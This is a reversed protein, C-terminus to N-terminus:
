GVDLRALLAETAAAPDRAGFVARICAVGAAGAALVEPVREPTIGGVAYVPLPSRATVEALAEPGVATKGPTPFVPGFLLYDAGATGTEEPCWHVSRGVIAGAGLLRRADTPALGREPLHVGAAGAAAAVDARDSVLWPAGAARALSGIRCALDLLPGGSLDKERLLVAATGPPAGELARGVAQALDPVLHRHTVLLLRPLPPTM